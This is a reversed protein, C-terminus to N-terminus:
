RLNAEVFPQMCENILNITEPKWERKNDEDGNCCYYYFRFLATFLVVQSNRGSQTRFITVRHKSSASFEPATAIATISWAM